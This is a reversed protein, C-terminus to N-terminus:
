KFDTDPIKTILFNNPMKLLFLDHVRILVIEHIDIHNINM